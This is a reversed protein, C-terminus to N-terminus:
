IVERDKLSQLEERSYGGIGLLIEETHEGLVPAPSRVQSPTESFYIPYGTFKVRGLAPHDYDIIYENEIVQPDSALDSITNVPASFLDKEKFLQLWEARPRQALVESLIAVLEKRNEHRKEETDFRPDEILRELGTAQCLRVWEDRFLCLHLWEGDAARYQNVLSFRPVKLDSADGFEKGTLLTMSLDSTLLWTMSGLISAYVEQGIGQRERAVLAGLIGYALTISGMQDGMGSVTWPGADSPRQARMIGSRAQGAPDFAGLEADPGKRGFGGAHAYILKPNYRKLTEYDLCLGVQARSRFNTMFVDSSKVLRYIVERGEPRKLDVAVSKKSRNMAEFYYSRGGPARYDVGGGVRPVRAPDGKGRDEIKIVEAGMDGLQSAAHPGVHYGCWSLVRIGELCGGM